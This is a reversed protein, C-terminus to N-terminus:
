AQWTMSVIGESRLSEVFGCSRYIALAPANTEYVELYVEHLRLDRAAFGLMLKTAAKALGMGRARLDGIMLRGFEARRQAWDVHYLAVQGVPAKMTATEEIVFVFDDDRARYSEFWARHQEPAILDSQFFRERIGDQNRWALTMPLDDVSLPRLRVREGELVAMNLKCM